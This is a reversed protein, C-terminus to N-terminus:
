GTKADSGEGTETFITQWRETSALEQAAARYDRVLRRWRWGLRWRNVAADLLERRATMRDRKMLFVGTGAAADVVASDLMGLSWWRGQPRTLHVATSESAPRRLQHVAVEIARVVSAVRGAPRSPADSERGVVVDSPLVVQGYGALVSSARAPGALLVPTLHGPGSLVDRLALNRLAVSGYQACLIHNLDQAFSSPLVGRGGHLLATVIRNRLQFYAQWDLGDDKATWPMHWLAAGPLTVTRVGNAAARLGFEADDWKIFFPLSAGARQVLSVPILCMWWGNFDVDIRRSLAPTASIPTSALDISSLGPDVATWWTTRRDVREGFSHLRTPETLSLMQAGVITPAEAHEAFAALRVLSQPELDVDDDLLLVHTTGAHVAAAMGRSFGGSGGLNAQEFVNLKGELLASAATFGAAQQLRRSGQDAVIVKRIRAMADADSAIRELLRICDEERNYTTIGVTLTAETPPADDSEWRADIVDAGTVGAVVECWLWGDDGTLRMEIVCEDSDVTRTTLKSVTGAADTRWIEVDAAGEVRLSLRVTRVGTHAYWYAAPLAGFYTAFSVRERPEVRVTARDVAEGGRVYLPMRDARDPEPLVARHIIRWTVHDSTASM